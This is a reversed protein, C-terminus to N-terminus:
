RIVKGTNDLLYVGYINGLSAPYTERITGDYSIRVQDGLRLVPVNEGGSIVIKDATTYESEDIFPALTITSGDLSIVTADFIKERGHEAQVGCSTLVTLCAATLVLFVLLKLRRM